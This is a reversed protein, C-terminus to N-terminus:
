KGTLPGIWDREQVKKMLVPDIFPLITKAFAAKILEYEDKCNAARPKPLWGADVMDKFAAANGGYAWCLENYFRQGATGHEDSYAKWELSDGIGENKWFFLDGRTIMRAVPPSFQLALFIAMQDAADEERGFVPVQLMDFAAHGIEHLLTVVIEGVVIEDHTFGDKTQGQKPAIKDLLEVYEYCLKLMWQGPSYFANAMGCEVTVMYFRHPLRLPSVFESLFELAKRKKLRDMIPQYKATKPPIYSIELKPNKLEQAAAPQAPMALCGFALAVVSIRAIWKMVIGSRQETVSSIHPMSRMMTREVVADV